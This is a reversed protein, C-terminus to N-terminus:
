YYLRKGKHFIDFESRIAPQIIDYPRREQSSWKKYIAWCCYDAIQLDLNAKASHHFLRYRVTAPLMLSLTTKVTKEAPKRKGGSFLSAAFVFVEDITKLDYQRIVFRLLYGLMQSYFRDAHQLAPGTKRKEIIVSDLTYRDLYAQIIKFVGDRVAQKDESAHFYEEAEIKQQLLDYRLDHLAKFAEFPRTKTVSTLIFYNSGNRSFNLDGSEDLFIYLFRPPM